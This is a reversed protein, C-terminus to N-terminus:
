IGLATRMSALQDTGGILRTMNEIDIEILNTGGIEVRYYSVGMTFNCETLEGSQFSGMDLEKICGRLNIVIAVADEGPRQMAGRATLQVANTDQLGWQQILAENYESVTFEAEMAESGMDIYYPADMGGARYEESKTSLTPPTLETVRGAYGVVDVSLQFNKLTRPLM